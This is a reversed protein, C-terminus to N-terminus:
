KIRIQRLFSILITEMYGETVDEIYINVQIYGNRIHTNKEWQFYGNDLASVVANYTSLIRRKEYVCFQFGVLADLYVLKTFINWAM